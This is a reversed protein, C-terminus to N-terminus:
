ARGQTVELGRRYLFPIIYAPEGRRTATAFLGISVLDDTVRRWESGLTRRLAQESYETKGGVLTEIHPWLHPFSVLLGVSWRKM